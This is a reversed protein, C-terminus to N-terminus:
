GNGPTSGNQAPKLLPPEPPMGNKLKDEIRILDKPEPGNDKAHQWQFKAEIQRGVKWYVDGLHEAIIPDSPILEVAREVETLAQEYDGLQYYAWGLSDVIMGDNPKLEVAKKVMGLAENLNVKREIMSYGLYNLVMPEEPSLELAKRFDPEAKDWKELQHYAIGRHYFVRWNDKGPPSLTAIAGDYAGVAKDYKESVRYVNGLTTLADLNAPDTKLLKELMNIADDTKELRQLNIAINLQANTLLPSTAAVGAYAANALEYKKLDVLVDGLLTQQMPKDGPLALALQTYMLAVTLSQDDTMVSALSFLAESAGASADKIFPPPIKGAKADALATDILISASSDKIFDEYVKIADASRKNRMLFNGYSQVVRLARSNAKLAEKYAAEARVPNRMVDAILAAHYLKFNAFAETQDLKDLEKLARQLNGEGAFSWASLLASTLTGIPTYAAEAFNARASGYKRQRLDKLGLTLRAARQQSNFRLVKRALEEAAPVDGDALEILFLREILTSNKPDQLLARTLYDSAQGTDNARDASRGALYNGSLSGQEDNLSFEAQAPLATSLTLFASLSLLHLNRM